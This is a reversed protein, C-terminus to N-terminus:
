TQAAARKRRFVSLALWTVLGAVLGAAVALTISGTIYQFLNQKVDDFSINSGIKFLWWTTDEKVFFRGMQMSGLLIFPIMPPISINSAILVLAKNLKLLQAIVVAILMQFGWVPFIGMFVGFGVSAAKTGNSEGAALLQERWIYRLGDKSFIFRLLNRPHIYLFAITVLVTNLVSIRSFDRFPRFHSVREEAPPYYVGVPVWGIRIGKWSCRVLVEIEFEYKTCAFRMGKMAFLPYLRYGSQTDPGKLGTEVYFWFNSFKNAFTNKGPMNEQHLNRAGILIAPDSKDAKDLFTLLDSAYHQGDADMTIAFDYGQELAYRFGRRLAIGKGRNPQYALVNIQPFRELVAMTDDTAGDNVVIVHRTYALVQELVAGLTGANNYTPILVCVKREGFQADYTGQQEM